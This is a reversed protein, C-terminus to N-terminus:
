ESESADEIKEAVKITRSFLETVDDGEEYFIQATWDGGRSFVVKNWTRYRIAGSIKSNFTDRTIGKHSVQMLIRPEAEQPVLFKMWLYAESGETLDSVQIEDKCNHKEDGEEHIAACIRFDMLVPRTADSYYYEVVTNAAEGSPASAAMGHSASVITITAVFFRLAEKTTM